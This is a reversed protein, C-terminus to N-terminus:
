PVPSEKGGKIDGRHKQSRKPASIAPRVGQRGSDFQEAWEYLQDFYDSAYFLGDWQFGVGAPRGGHHFDVYEQEKRKRPQHRRLAPKGSAATSGPWASTQPLDVQAHGIHLYATPAEPRFARASGPRRVQRHPQGEEVIEQIFHLSPAAEPQPATMARNRQPLAVFKGTEGAPRLPPAPQGGREAAGRPSVNHWASRPARDIRALVNSGASSPWPKMLASAPGKATVAVRLAQTVQASRSGGRDARRKQVLAELAASTSRSSGCRPRRPTKRLLALRMGALSACTSTSPSRTTPGDPRRAMFFFATSWSTRRGRRAPSCCGRRGAPVRALTEGAPPSPILGAKELFPLARNVREESSLALQYREQFPLCNRSTLVPRRSSQGRELSFHAIMEDRSFNETRDDLPGLGVLLLYNLIAEPLYGVQKYFDVIV